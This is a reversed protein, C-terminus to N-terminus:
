ANTYIELGYKKLSSPLSDLTPVLDIMIESGLSKQENNLYSFVDLLETAVCNDKTLLIKLIETNEKLIKVIDDFYKDIDLLCPLLSFIYEVTSLSLYPSAKLFESLYNKDQELYAQYFGILRLEYGKMSLDGKEFYCKRFFEFDKAYNQISAHSM